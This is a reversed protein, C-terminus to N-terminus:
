KLTDCLIIVIIIYSFYRDMNSQFQAKALALDGRVRVIEGEVMGLTRARVETVASRLHSLQTLPHNM